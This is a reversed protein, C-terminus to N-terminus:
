SRRAHQTALIDARKSALSAGSSRRRSRACRRSCPTSARSRASPAADSAPRARDGRGGARADRADLADAGSALESQPFGETPIFGPMVTGVHVGHPHEEARLSDSWVAFAAKAASYAGVGPRGIAGRPARSTSSRARRRPACCRCCRRSWGCRRTSTSRWRGASWPTAPRPSTRRPRRRRRQQRAPRAARRPAGRPARPRARPGRRRDPRARARDRAGAAGGRAARAARRPPRAPRAADRARARAAARDGRRPREVRRHDPRRDDTRSTRRFRRSGRARRGLLGVREVQFRARIGRLSVKGSRPYYVIDNPERTGFALLTLGDSVPASRTRSARNRAPARRHQRAAGPARRRRAAAGRRRRARRLDGGRGCPLAASQVAHGARRRASAVGIRVSGLADGLDCRRCAVDGRRTESLEGDALAVITPPRGPEPAPLELPGAAAEAAFPDPGDLPLWRPDLWMAGARPLWTAGTESGSGFALVDLGDGAGAITHAEAGPLHLICDGARVAYTRGDQWSLGEGALVYFLEEEDGHVHVPMAREGAALRYRSLGTRSAGAAAGLRWRTGRLDGEDILSRSSRTGTCRRRCRGTLRHCGRTGRACAGPVAPRMGSEVLKPWAPRVPQRLVRASRTAGGAACRAGNESSWARAAIPPAKKRSTARSRRRWSRESPSSRVFSLASTPEPTGARAVVWPLPKM